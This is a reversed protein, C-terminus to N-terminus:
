KKSFLKLTCGEHKLLWEKRHLGSSYGGMAGNMNIVRHCPIIVPLLNAGNASAAARFAKPNGIMSSLDSYSITKGFPIKQLAEWVKIQFTTGCLFMPTKFLKLTGEFYSKLENKILDTIITAGPVIMSKHKKKLFEVKRELKSCETFELLYLFKEDAIVVMQGLPTDIETLKLEKM